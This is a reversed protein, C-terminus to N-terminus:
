KRRGKLLNTGDRKVKRGVLVTKKKKLKIIKVPSKDYVSNPDPDPLEIRLDDHIQPM